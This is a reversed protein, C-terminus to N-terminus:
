TECRISVRAGEILALMRRYAIEGTALWRPPVPALPTTAASFM